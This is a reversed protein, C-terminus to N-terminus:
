SSSSAVRRWEEEPRITAYRLMVGLMGASTPTRSRLASIGVNVMHFCSGDDEDIREMNEISSNEMDSTNFVSLGSRSCIRGGRPRLYSIIKDHDLRPVQMPDFSGHIAVTVGPTVCVNAHIVPYVTGNNHLQDHIPDTLFWDIVYYSSDDIFNLIDHM